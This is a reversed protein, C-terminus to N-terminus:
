VGIHVGVCANIRALIKQQLNRINETKQEVMYQVRGTIDVTSATTIQKTCM